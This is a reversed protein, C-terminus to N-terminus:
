EVATSKAERTGARDEVQAKLQSYDYALALRSKDDIEDSIQKFRDFNAKEEMLREYQPLVEERMIRETEALKSEKKRITALASEKQHLYASTGKAEEVLSLVEKPAMKIVQIIRGQMILFHPNNVNLKVSLFLNRVQEATSTKGNIYCKMKNNEITRSVSITASEEFGTPSFNKNRNDFKLTVSAKTVGANGGKYVLDQMKEARIMSMRSIGMVFCIADLINSKGSGNLGTIANFQPDFGEINTRVSYSKFGDIVIEIIHM